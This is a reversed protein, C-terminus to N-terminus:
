SADAQDDAGPMRYPVVTGPLRPSADGGLNAAHRETPDPWLPVIHMTRGRCRSCVMQLSRRLEPFPMDDLATLRDIPLTTTNHCTQGNWLSLCTVSLATIGQHRLTALTPVPGDYGRRKQGALEKAQLKPAGARAPAEAPAPGAAPVVYRIGCRAEYQRPKESPKMLTCDAAVAELLRDLAMAAGYREALRALRYRGQRPCLSCEIDVVVWPWDVLYRPGAM